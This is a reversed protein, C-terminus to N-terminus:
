KSVLAGFLGFHSQVCLTWVCEIHMNCKGGCKVGKRKVILWALSIPLSENEWQGCHYMEIVKWFLYIQRKLSQILFKQSSQLTFMCFSTPQFPNIVTNPTANQFYGEWVTWFKGNPVIYIDIKAFIKIQFKLIGIPLKQSSQWSSFECSTQISFFLQSSYLKLLKWNVM